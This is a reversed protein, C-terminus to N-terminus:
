GLALYSPLSRQRQSAAATDVDSDLGLKSCSQAALVRYFNFRKDVNSIQWPPHFLLIGGGKVWRLGNPNLNQPAAGAGKSCPPGFPVLLRFLCNEASCLNKVKSTATYGKGRTSRQAAKLPSVFLLADLVVEEPRSLLHTGRFCGTHAATRKFFRFRSIDGACM